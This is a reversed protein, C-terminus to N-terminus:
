EEFTSTLRLDVNIKPEKNSSNDNGFIADVLPGITHFSKM